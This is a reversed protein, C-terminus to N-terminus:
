GCPGDFDHRALILRFFGSATCIFVTHLIMHHRCCYALVALAGAYLLTLSSRLSSRARVCEIIGYFPSGSHRNWTSCSLCPPLDEIRSVCSLRSSDSAPMNVRDHHAVHSSGRGVLYLAYAAPILSSWGGGIKGVQSTRSPPSLCTVSSTGAVCAVLGRGDAGHGLFFPQHSSAQIAVAKFSIQLAM